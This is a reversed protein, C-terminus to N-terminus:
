PESFAVFSANQRVRTAFVPRELRGAGASYQVTRVELDTPDPVNADRPDSLLM